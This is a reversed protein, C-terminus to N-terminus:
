LMEGIKKFTIGKLKNKEIRDRFSETVILMTRNSGNITFMEWNKARSDIVRIKMIMFIEGNLGRMVNSHNFDIDTVTQMCNIIFWQKNDVQIPILEVETKSTPLVIDKLESSFAVVGSSYVTCINPTNKNKKDITEFHFCVPMKNEYTSKHIISSFPIWEHFNDILLSQYSNAAQIKYLTKM